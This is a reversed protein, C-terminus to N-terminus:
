VKELNKLPEIKANEIADILAVLELAQKKGTIQMPHNLLALLMDKQEKSDIVM